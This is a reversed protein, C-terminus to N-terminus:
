AHVPEDDRGSLEYDQVFPLERAIWIGPTCGALANWERTMHAQDHYGCAYALEALSPREDKILRCAREFRFIRAATKPTVGLETRFRESFHRRSWGLEHALRQIPMCGHAQVLRGWAWALERRPAATPRLARVFVADLIKFRQEWTGAAMLREVLDGVELGWLDSFDVVRSVLEPSSAGLIARVGLPTLFVHLGRLNGDHRVTAPADQLGSVFAAFAGPKQTESPMRIIDIPSGLGIILHVHRSPLGAHTGPPLGQACYGAYRAIFPRLAQTPLRVAQESHPSSM